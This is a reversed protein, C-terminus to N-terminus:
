NCEYLLLSLQSLQHHSTILVDTLPLGLSNMQPVTLSYCHAIEIKGLSPPEMPARTIFFDISTEM